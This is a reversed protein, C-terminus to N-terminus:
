VVNKINEGAAVHAPIMEVLKQFKSRRSPHFIERKVTLM